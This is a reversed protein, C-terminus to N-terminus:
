GRHERGVPCGELCGVEIGVMTLLLLFGVFVGVATGVTTVGEYRGVTMGERGLPCGLPVCSERVFFLRNKCIM